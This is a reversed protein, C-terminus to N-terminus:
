ETKEENHIVGGSVIFKMLEGSDGHYPRLKDKDVLFLNGSFAYSHPLYVAVMGPLGLLSLDEQTIFGPKFIGPTLEVIVPKDFKKKDGVFAEILDKISTYIVKVFPINSFLDDMLDIIPRTMITSGIFGLFTITSIVMVFGLGKTELDLVADISEVSGRIIRYTAYIPLSILLGKLFYNLLKRLRSGLSQRIIQKQKSYM